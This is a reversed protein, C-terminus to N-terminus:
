CNEIKDSLALLATNDGPRIKPGDTVSSKLAQVIMASQGFRHELVKLALQCGNPLGNYNEIVAKARGTTYSMLYNLKESDSLSKKCEVQDRFNARFRLYKAPDGDFPALEPSPQSLRLEMREWFTAQPECGMRKNSSTQKVQVSEEYTQVNQLKNGVAAGDKHENVLRTTSNLGTNGRPLSSSLPSHYFQPAHPNSAGASEGTTSNFSVQLPKEKTPRPKMDANDNDPDDSGLYQEADENIADEYVKGVAAAIACEATLRTREAERKATEVHDLQAIRARLEVEKAKAELARARSSTTSARSAKSIKSKVSSKTSNREREEDRIQQEANAMWERVVERLPVIEEHLNIYVQHDQVLEEGSLLDQIEEHLDGFSKFRENLDICEQSVRELNKSLGMLTQINAIQAQIERKLRKRERVSQVIKYSKGKETLKRERRGGISATGGSASDPNPNEIVTKDENGLGQGNRFKELFEVEDNM